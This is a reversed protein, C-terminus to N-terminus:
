ERGRYPRVEFGSSPCVGNDRGGRLPFTLIPTVALGTPGDAGTRKRWAARRKQGLIRVEADCFQAYGVVSEAVFHAVQHLIPYHRLKFGTGGDLAMDRWENTLSAAVAPSTGLTKHTRVWNYYVVHLAMALTHNRLKKSFANTKRTYRRQSMRLTLNHREVHATSPVDSTPAKPLHLAEAGFAEEIAAPYAGHQDTVLTVEGEVRGRLDDMFETASALGRDAVLWAVILKTDQDLAIWTWVDGSELEDSMGRKAYCFSWIEDCQVIGPVVGRVQEDHFRRCAEGVEVFLKTVTNISVGVVRATSRMSSGEVLMSIIQIRKDLPLRNM